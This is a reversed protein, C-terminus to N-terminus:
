ARKWTTKYPMRLEDITKGLFQKGAHARVNDSSFKCFSLSVGRDLLLGMFEPDITEPYVRGRPVYDYNSRANYQDVAYALDNNSYYAVTAISTGQMYTHFILNVHDGQEYTDPQFGLLLTRPTRDAFDSSRIMPTKAPDRLRKLFEEETQFFNTM